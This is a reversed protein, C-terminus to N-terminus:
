MFVFYIFAYICFYICKFFFLFLSIHLYIFIPIFLPIFLCLFFYIFVPIFLSIHFYICSCAQSMGTLCLTAITAVSTECAPEEVCRLFVGCQRRMRMGYLQLWCCCVSRQARDNWSPPGGLSLRLSSPSAELLQFGPFGVFPELYRM